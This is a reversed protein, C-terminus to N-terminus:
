FRIGIGLGATLGSVDVDSDLSSIEDPAISMKKWSYDAFVDLFFNSWQPIPFIWFGADFGGGIGVENDDSRVFPSGNHLLMIFLRPGAGAYTAVYSNFYYIAKLGLTLTALKIKLKEEGGIAKGDKAFYGADIWVILPKYFRYGTEARISFGGKDFFQRMDPDTFYYYAPEIEFYWRKEPGYYPNADFCIEKVEQKPEEQVPCEESEILPDSTQGVLSGFALIFFSGRM